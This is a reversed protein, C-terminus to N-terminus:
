PQIEATLRARDMNKGQRIPLAFYIRAGREVEGDAWIRGGHREIIRKVTALGIGTGEFDRPKHLRQFPKFLKGKYVADFGAGDDIIFFVRENNEERSGFEIRASDHHSTFKWSNGILNELVVRLLHPDGQTELNNQIVFDVERESEFRKLTAAIEQAIQTLNVREILMDSRTVKALMLLDDILQGMRQSATRIRDLIQKGDEDIQDAYDEILALSFGDISRLPARLDHSVSYSFSQLEKNAAVLAATREKVKAELEEAHRQVQHHLRAQQIAIALSDAVERAINLHEQAFPGPQDKALNLSGILAEQVRLPVSVLSRLDKTIFPQLVEPLQPTSQLDHVEHISGQRLKNVQPKFSQLSLRSDRGIRDMGLGEAALVQATNDEFDFTTVSSRTTPILQAIHKLTVSAITEPSRAVRISRHIDNLIRLREAYRHQAEEARKPGTVDQVTGVLWL